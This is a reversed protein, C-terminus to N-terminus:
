KIEKKAGETALRDAEANCLSLNDQKGTHARVHTMTIKHKQMKKDIKKILDQNLVQKGTSGKWNNKKWSIIWETLSKISYESDSYIHIKNFTLNEEICKIAKYIAYLEARQNTLPERIFRRSINKLEKNPFYIGYGCQPQKNKGKICSGDTFVIVTDVFQKNNINKKLEKSSM